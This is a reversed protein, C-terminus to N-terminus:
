PLGHPSYSGNAALLMTGFVNLQNSTTIQISIVNMLHFLSLGVYM